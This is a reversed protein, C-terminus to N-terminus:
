TLEFIVHVTARVTSTGPKTPPPTAEPAAEEASVSGSKFEPEVFEAGEGEEITLAEGLKAGAQGALIMAREKAKAFAAALAKGFAEERDGVSFTPGSVGTAGATLGKAILEGAKAPEHLTVSIGETARYVTAQGKQVPRVDIRGTRIDGEGVGPFAQAAAIVKRLEKATEQLAAGRTKRERKVGFGIRATDNPVKITAKATVAVTRGTAASAAAPLLACALLAALTLTLATKRKM